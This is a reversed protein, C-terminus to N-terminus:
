RLNVSLKVLTFNYTASIMPSFAKLQSVNGTGAQTVKLTWALATRRMSLGTRASLPPAAEGNGLGPWGALCCRAAHCSIPIKDM